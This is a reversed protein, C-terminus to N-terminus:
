VNEFEPANNDLLQNAQRVAEGTGMKDCFVASSLAVFEVGTVAVSIVSEVANGGPCIGPIEVMQAWWECLALYKPHAEPKIDGLLKGFFVYDPGTEGLSLAMHRTTIAGAGVIKAPSFKGIAERLEPVGVNGGPLDLHVGDADCRGAIRTDNAVIAAAGTEQIVPIVDECVSQFNADDPLSPLIVSAVDGGELAEALFRAPDVLNVPMVIVLRCRNPIDM